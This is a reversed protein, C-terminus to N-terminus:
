GTTTPFDRQGSQRPPPPRRRHPPPRRRHPPPRGLMSM